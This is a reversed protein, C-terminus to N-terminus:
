KFDPCIAATKFDLCFHRITWNELPQSWLELGVRLFVLGNSIREEFLGSKSNESKLDGSYLMVSLKQMQNLIKNHIETISHAM